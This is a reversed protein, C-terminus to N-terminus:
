IDTLVRVKLCYIDNRMTKIFCLERIDSMCKLAINIGHKKPDLNKLTWTKRPRPKEPRAWPGLGPKLLLGRFSTATFFEATRLHEEFYSNKIIKCFEFSVGTNPREEIFNCGQLRVAKNFLSELM